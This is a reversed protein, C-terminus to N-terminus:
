QEHDFNIKDQILFEPRSRTQDYIRGIYQGIIGLVFLILGGIFYLSVILSYYGPVNANYILKISIFYLGMCLSGFASLFGIYMAINLPKNSFSLMGNLALKLMRSLNYNSKGYKRERHEADFYGEQFNMWYFVGGIYKHVERFQRFSDNVLRTMIRFTGVHPDLKIGSMVSFINNYMRSTLRKFGSDKRNIRRVYVIENESQRINEYLRPIVEPEDQLDGDMMVVYNGKAMYLGATLANHQGFNRAFRAAKIRSDKAAEAKLVPWSRDRSRDEIFILEYQETVQLAAKQLRDVLEPLVEEANYITVVISLETM